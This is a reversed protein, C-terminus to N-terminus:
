YRGGQTDEVAKQAEKRSDFTGLSKNERPRGSGVSAMYGYDGDDEWHYVCGVKKGGIFLYQYDEGSGTGFNPGWGHIPNDPMPTESDLNYLTNSRILRKM